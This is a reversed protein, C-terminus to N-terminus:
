WFLARKLYIAVELILIFLFFLHHIKKPPPPWLRKADMTLYVQRIHLYLPPRISLFIVFLNSFDYQTAEKILYGWLWNTERMCTLRSNGIVERRDMWVKWGGKLVDTVCPRVVAAKSSKDKRILEQIRILRFILRIWM